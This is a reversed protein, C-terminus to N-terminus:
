GWTMLPNLLRITSIQPSVFPLPARLATPMPESGEFIGTSTSVIKSNTAQSNEFRSIPIGQYPSESVPGSDPSHPIDGSLLRRHHAPPPPTSAATTRHSRHHVSEGGYIGLISPLSRDRQRPTCRPSEGRTLFEERRVHDSIALDSTALDNM